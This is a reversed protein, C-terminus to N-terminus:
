VIVPTQAVSNSSCKIDGDLMEAGGDGAGDVPSEKKTWGTLDLVHGAEAGFVAANRQANLAQAQKEAQYLKVAEALRMLVSTSIMVRQQM